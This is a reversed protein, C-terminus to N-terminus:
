IRIISFINEGIPEIPKIQVEKVQAMTPGQHCWQIMLDLATESGEIEAYVSGDPENKVFGFLGLEEAKQRTSGRFYVGQVRGYIRLQYRKQM